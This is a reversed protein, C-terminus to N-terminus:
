RHTQKQTVLMSNQNSYNKTYDSFLSHSLQLRQEKEELSNKTIQLDKM